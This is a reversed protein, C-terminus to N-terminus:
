YYSSMWDRAVGRWFGGITRGVMLDTAEFVPSRYSSLGNGQPIVFLRVFFKM